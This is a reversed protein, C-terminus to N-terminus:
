GSRGAHLDFQCVGSVKIYARLGPALEAAQDLVVHLLWMWESGTNTIVRLSEAWFSRLSDAGSELVNTFAVVRM